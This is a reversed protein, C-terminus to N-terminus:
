LELLSVINEGQITSRGGLDTLEILVAVASVEGGAQRVLEAGAALTGGTALVDDVILVRDGSSIADAHIELTGEGYELDYTVAHTGRPLKGAKRMPIFPVNLKLALPPAFLFGRAEIGAVADFELSATADSLAGIAYHFASADQLMPTIDRFLVGPQPFDPVDSIYDRLDM